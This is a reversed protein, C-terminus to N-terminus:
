RLPPQGGPSLERIRSSKNRSPESPKPLFKNQLHTEKRQHDLIVSAAKLEKKGKGREEEKRKVGRKRKKNREEGRKDGGRGERRRGKESDREGREEEYLFTHEDECVRWNTHCKNM